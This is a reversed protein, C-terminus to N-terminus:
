NLQLFVAISLGFSVLVFLSAIIGIVNKSLKNRGIGKIIFGALPLFPILWIYKDM